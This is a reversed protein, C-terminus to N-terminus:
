LYNRMSDAVVQLNSIETGFLKDEAISHSGYLVDRAIGGYVEDSGNQGLM